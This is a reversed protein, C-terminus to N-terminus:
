RGPLCNTKASASDHAYKGSYPSDISSFNSMLMRCVWGIELIFSCWSFSSVLFSGCSCCSDDTIAM